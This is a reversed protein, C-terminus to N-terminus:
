IDYKKIEYSMIDRKVRAGKGYILSDVLTDKIDKNDSWMRKNKLQDKDPKLDKIKIFIQYVCVDEYPYAMEAFTKAMSPFMSLYVFGTQSQLSKKTKNSTRKLGEKSVPIECSTGHYLLVYDEGRNNRLVKGFEKKDKETFDDSYFLKHFEEDKHFDYIKDSPNMPQFKDYEQYEEFLKIYKSM